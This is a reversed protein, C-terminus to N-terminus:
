YLILDYDKCTLNAPQNAYAFQCTNNLNYNFFTSVYGSFDSPFTQKINQSIDGETQYVNNM